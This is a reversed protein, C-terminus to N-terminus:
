KGNQYRKSKELFILKNLLYKPADIKPAEKNLRYDYKSLMYNYIMNIFRIM